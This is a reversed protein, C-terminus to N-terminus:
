FFKIKSSLYASTLSLLIVISFAWSLSTAQSVFGILVPGAMFGGMAFTNMVALGTGKSVGPVRASAGYLIPAACSVGAGVISFGIITLWTTPFLLAISVGVTVLLGGYILIKNAGIKPILSDGFFRGLAMFLSYGALGWGVFYPSSNVVNKMFVSSWDAMTGESINGCVGILIMVLFTGKPLVFKSQPTSGDSVVEDQIKFITPRILFAFLIILASTGIMYLGPNWEFGRALSACMSGVMLGVSFMGHCTSMIKVDHDAEICTVGMNMAINTISIGSGCLYLGIPLMYVSSSNLPVLFALSMGIMGLITTTKMGIKAVLWAGVLNMTVSGIPMSLLILGLDADNLAFKEKIFPIFTAWTGFLLGVAIFAVAIARSQRNGFFDKTLHNLM